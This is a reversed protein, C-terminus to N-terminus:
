LDTKSDKALRMYRIVMSASIGSLLLPDDRMGVCVYVKKKLNEDTRNNVDMKKKQKRLRFLFV